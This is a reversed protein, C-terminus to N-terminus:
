TLILSLSKLLRFFFFTIYDSISAHIGIGRKSVVSATIKYVSNAELSVFEYEVMSLPIETQHVVPLLVEKDNQELLWIKLLLGTMDDTVTTLPSWVIGIKNHSRFVQKM